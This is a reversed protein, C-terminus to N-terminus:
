HSSRLCVTMYGENDDLATVLTDQSNHENESLRTFVQTRSLEDTSELWKGNKLISTIMGSGEVEPFELKCKEATMGTVIWKGDAYIAQCPNLGTAMDKGVVRTRFNAPSTEFLIIEEPGLDYHKHKLSWATGELKPLSTDVSHVGLVSLDDVHPATNFTVGPNM